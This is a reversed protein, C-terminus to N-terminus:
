KYFGVCVATDSTKECYTSKPEIKKTLPDTFKYDQWFSASTKMLEVRKKIYYVGDADQIEILDKGILKPNSGHALCKGTSDYVTVYLDRDKFPGPKTFDDYAKQPGNAKIYAVAKKVMAQAEDKTGRDGALSSATALALAMGASIAFKLVSKM